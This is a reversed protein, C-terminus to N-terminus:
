NGTIELKVSTNPGKLGFTLYTQANLNQTEIASTSANDFSITFGSSDSMGPVSYGMAFQNSNVSLTTGDSSETEIYPYPSGTLTTVSAYTLGTTYSLTGGRRFTEKEEEPAQNYQDQELIFQNLDKRAEVQSQDKKSAMVAEQIRALYRDVSYPDGNNLVGENNYSYMGQSTLVYEELPAEVAENIDEGSPGGVVYGNVHTHSILTAKQALAKVAPLVGIEDESGSTVLVIEGHLVLAAVEFNLHTLKKLDEATLEKVIVASAYNTRM